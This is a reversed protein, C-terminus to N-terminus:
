NENSVEQKSITKSLIVNTVLVIIGCLIFAIGRAILSNTQTFFKIFAVTLLFIAFVNVGAISNQKFAAVIEWICFIVILLVSLVPILKDIFRSLGENYEFQYIVLFVAIALVMLPPVFNVLTKSKIVKILPRIFLIATVFALNFNVLSIILEPSFDVDKKKILYDYFSYVERPSRALLGFLFDFILIFLIASCVAKGINKIANNKATFILYVGFLLFLYLVYLFNNMACNLYSVTFILDFLIMACFFPILYIQKSILLRISAYVFVTNILAFMVSRMTGETLLNKYALILLVNAIIYLVLVELIQFVFNKQKILNIFGFIFFAVAFAMMVSLYVIQVVSLSESLMGIFEPVVAIFKTSYRQPIILLLEIAIFASFVPLVYELSKEQFKWSRFIMIGFILFVFVSAQLLIFDCYCIMQFIVSLFLISYYKGDKVLVAGVFVYLLILASVTIKLTSFCLDIYDNNILVFETTVWLPIILLLLPLDYKKKIISYVVPILVGGISCVYIFALSLGGFDVRWVDNIPLIFFSTILGVLAIGTIYNKKFNYGYLIFFVSVPIIPFINKGFAAACIFLGLSLIATSYTKVALYIAFTSLFWLLIFLDNQIPLLYIQSLFQISAGFLLSWLVSLFEVPGRKALVAFKQTGLFKPLLLFAPILTIIFACVTKVSRSIANWNYGILSIIGASILVAAIVSLILPAKVPKKESKVVPKQIVATQNFVAYPNVSAATEEMVINTNLNTKEFDLIKKAATEDIYNNDQWVKVEKSLWEFHENM